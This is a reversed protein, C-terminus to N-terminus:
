MARRGELAKALTLEDAYEVDGGIPLGYALRTVSVGLPQLLRSLYIATAEGETDPDTAVIIERPHETRVRELLEKIRLQEPGIGAMPSIVGGLVHYLGRYAGSREIAHVDQAEAVVCIVRADREPDTCLPCPDEETIAFCRSCFRVREKLAIIADALAQVDSRPRALLHFALRTATKPGITPLKSFENVLVEVPHALAGSRAM